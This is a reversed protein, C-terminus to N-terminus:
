AATGKGSLLRDPEPIHPFGRFNDKNTFKADCTTILKDCGAQMSYGDTEAVVFPMPHLLTVTNTSTVWSRVEMSLNINAGSTWTLVGYKFYDDAQAHVSTTFESNSAVTQVTGTVTFGPTLVTCRADYLEANCTRLFKRGITHQLAQKLGLVEATFRGDSYKIEGIVGTRLIMVGWGPNDWHIAFIEVKASDFKGAFFDAETLGPSNIIGGIELNDTSFAHDNQIASPSIGTDALYTVSDYLIDQDHDTFAFVTSDVRTIKWLLSIRLETLALASKFNASTARM